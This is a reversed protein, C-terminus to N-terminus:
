GPCGRVRRALATTVKQHQARGKCGNRESQADSTWGKCLQRVTDFLPLSNTAQKGLLGWGREAAFHLQSQHAVLGERARSVHTDALNEYCKWCTSVSNSTFHRVPAHCHGCRDSLETGHTPCVVAFALRWYLRMYAGNPEKLCHPCFQQTFRGAGSTVQSTPMLWRARGQFPIDEAIIGAYREITASRLSDEAASAGYALRELIETAPFRDLDQRAILQRTGFAFSLLTYPRVGM